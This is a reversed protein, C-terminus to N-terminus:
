EELANLYFRFTVGGTPNNQADIEGGHYNVISKCIALGLVIGRKGETKSRNSIFFMDFIKPLDGEAIGEGNDSVEFWVRDGDPYVSVKIEGEPNTHKLANDILNILVQEILKGDMPVFLVEHPVVTSIRRNPTYKSARSVSESVIEEVAESKKNLSLRGEQIKTLSLVNEVLLTLWCSDEYIGQAIKINEDYKLNHLLMEASGTIGALPTRLDHSIARLLNSKFKERETDVRAAEKEATLLEHEMSITIQLIVSDLLSRDHSKKTELGAPLCVYSVIKGKVSIPITFFEQIVSAAEANKIMDSQITQGGKEVKLRLIESTKPTIVLLTVDSKLLDALCQISVSAIEQIGVTKVLRSTIINLLQAQKERENAIERLLILKSTMTSTFVAALLMVIFTFIYNDNYFRFTYLPSIFFFNFSLMALISAIIGYAYGKTYRSIILVSLIFVVVFNVEELGLHRALVSLLTALVIISLMFCLDIINQKWRIRITFPGSM